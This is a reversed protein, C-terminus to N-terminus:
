LLRPIGLVQGNDTRTVQLDATGSTPANNPILLNIQGPSVFYLPMPTGNLLVQIAQMNTPLPLTTFSQTGPASLAARPSSRFLPTLHSLWAARSTARAMSRRSASTTSSWAISTTRSMCRATDTLPWPSRAPRPFSKMRRSARGHRVHVAFHLRRLLPSGPQQRWDLDPRPRRPVIGYTYYLDIAPQEARRRGPRRRFHLSSPVTGAAVINDFVVVRNNGSDVVYLRQGSDVAIGHPSNFRNDASGSTATTFGAQGWVKTAAM